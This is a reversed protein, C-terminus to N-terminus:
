SFLKVWAIPLYNMITWGAASVLIAMATLRIWFLKVHVRKFIDFSFWFNYLSSLITQWLFVNMSIINIKFIAGLVIDSITLMMFYTGGGYLCLTLIEIFNFRNRGLLLYTIYASVLLILFIFPTFHTRLFINSEEKFDLVSASKVSLSYHFHYRDIIFNHVLIYLGTLILIYSVPKQYAKRQGKLFNISASGPKILFLWITHFFGKEYHTLSHITEKMLHPGTIREVEAKQGCNPCFNSKFKHGCNLCTTEARLHHRSM